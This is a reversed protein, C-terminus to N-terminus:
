SMHPRKRPNGTQHFQPLNQEDQKLVLNKLQLFVQIIDTVMAMPLEDSIFSGGHGNERLM